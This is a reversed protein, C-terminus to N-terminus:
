LGAEFFILFDSLLKGTSDESAPDALERREAATTGFLLQTFSNLVPKARM